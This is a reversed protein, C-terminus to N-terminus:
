RGKPPSAVSRTREVSVPASPLAFSSDSGGPGHFTITCARPKTGCDRRRTAEPGSATRRSLPPETVPTTRSPRVLRGTGPELTDTRAPMGPVPPHSSSAVRLSVVVSASPRKRRSPIPRVGALRTTRAGPNSWASVPAVCPPLTSTKRKGPAASAPVTRSSSPRGTFPAATRASVSRDQIAGGVSRVSARPSNRTGPTRGPRYVTTARSPPRAGPIATAATSGSASVRTSIRRESPPKAVPRM